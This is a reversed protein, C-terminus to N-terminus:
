LFEVRLFNPIAIERMGSVVTIRSLDPDFRAEWDKAEVVSQDPLVKWVSFGGSPKPCLRLGVFGSYASQDPSWPGNPEAHDVM